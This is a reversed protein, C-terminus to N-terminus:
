CNQSSEIAPQLLLIELHSLAKRVSFSRGSYGSPTNSSKSLARVQTCHSTSQYLMARAQVSRNLENRGRLAVSTVVHVDQSMSFLGVAVYLCAVRLAPAAVGLVPRRRAFHM